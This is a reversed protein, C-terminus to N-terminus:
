CSQYNKHLRCFMAESGIPMFFNEKRMMHTRCPFRCNEGHRRSLIPTEGILLFGSNRRRHRLLHLLLFVFHRLLRVADVDRLGALGARDAALYDSSSVWAFNTTDARFSHLRPAHPPLSTCLSYLLIFCCRGGIINIPPRHM